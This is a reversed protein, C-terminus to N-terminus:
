PATIGEVMMDLLEQLSKGSPIKALIEETFATVPEWFNGGIRQLGSYKSQNLLATIAPSDQVEKSAAARINSPGQGRMQFRLKQNEENAIWEALKAAWEPHESYSNVGILKYGSFSAMQIPQGACM